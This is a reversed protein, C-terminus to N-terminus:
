LGRYQQSLADARASQGPTFNTMCADDSYDMFNTVPDAGPRVPCSDRGTQCGFARSREAPTDIVFDGFLTLCSGQFTHFLGLWHGVEHVATMGENYPTASGGPLSAYLIVVGDNLPASEYDTPFTAWGLLGEPPNNTYINLDKATGQRLAAKMEQEAVTDPGATFWAGNATRDVAVLMFRFPTNAGGATGSYSANLAEIQAAISADDLNGENNTATIVHFYVNVTVSGPDRELTAPTLQAKFQELAIDIALAERASVQRTGCRAGSDVFAKQDRWTLGNLHFTKTHGADGFLGQALPQDHSLPVLLELLLGIAVASLLVRLRQAM